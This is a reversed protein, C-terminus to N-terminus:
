FPLDDLPEDDSESTPSAYGDEVVSLHRDLLGWHTVWGVQSDGLGPRDFCVVRGRARLTQLLAAVEVIPLGAASAIDVVAKKPGRMAALVRQDPPLRGALEPTDRVDERGLRVTMARGEDDNEFDLRVGIPSYQRTHNFKSHYLGLSYSDADHEQAKRVEWAVRSDLIKRYAGHAKGALQKGLGESSVHDVILTSVGPGFLKIASFLELATDEWGGREGPPGGAHGASDVIVLGIDNAQIVGVIEHIARALPGAPKMWLLEVPEIGLGGCYVRIREEFTEADDEWDLYLVNRQQTGLDLFPRGLQVSVAIAISLWGKGAGGPGFLNTIRGSQVLKGVVDPSHQPRPRRGLRLLTSKNDEANLVQVCFMEVARLWDLGGTQDGAADGLYRALEKRASKGSLNQSGKFLHRPMGPMSGSVTVQGHLEGSTRRLRDAVFIVGGPKPEYEWGLGRPRFDPPAPQVVSLQPVREVTM